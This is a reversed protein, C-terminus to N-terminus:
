ETKRLFEPIDYDAIEPMASRKISGMFAQQKEFAICRGLDRFEDIDTQTELFYVAQNCHDCHRIEHNNTPKFVEWKKPCVFELSYEIEIKM